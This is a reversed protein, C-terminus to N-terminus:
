DIYDAVHGSLACLFGGFHASERSLRKKCQSIKQTRVFAGFIFDFICASFGPSESRVLEM